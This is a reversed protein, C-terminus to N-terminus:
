RPFNADTVEYRVFSGYRNIGVRSLYRQRLVARTEAADRILRSMTRGHPKLSVRSARNFFVRLTDSVADFDASGREGQSHWTRREGRSVFFLSIKGLAFPCIPENGAASGTRPPFFHM